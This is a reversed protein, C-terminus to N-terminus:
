GGAGERHPFPHGPLLIVTFDGDDGDSSGCSNREGDDGDDGDSSGRSNCDGDDGDYDDSSGRSNCDSDDGDHDDDPTVPLSLSHHAPPQSSVYDYSM